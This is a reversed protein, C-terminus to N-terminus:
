INNRIALSCSYLKNNNASINFCETPYKRGLVPLFHSYEVETLFAINKHCFLSLIYNLVANRLRNLRKQRQRLQCTDFIGKKVKICGCALATDHISTHKLNGLLSRDVFYWASFNPVNKIIRNLFTLSLDNDSFSQKKHLKNVFNITYANENYLM